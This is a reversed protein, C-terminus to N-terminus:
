FLIILTGFVNLLGHVVGSGLLGYKKWMLGFILGNLFAYVFFGFAFGTEIMHSYAFLFASSTLAVAFHTKKQFYHLFIGRFILEEGFGIVGSLVASISIGLISGFVGVSKRTMQVQSTNEPNSTLPAFFEIIM